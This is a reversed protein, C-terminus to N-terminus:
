DLAAQYRGISEVIDRRGYVLVELKSLLSECLILTLVVIAGDVVFIPM